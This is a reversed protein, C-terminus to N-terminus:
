ECFLGNKVRPTLGLGVVYPGSMVEINALRSAVTREEPENQRKQQWRDSMDGLQTPRYWILIDFGNSGRIARNFSKM